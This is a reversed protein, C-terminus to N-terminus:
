PVLDRQYWTGPKGGLHVPDAPGVPVFGAKVLVKRSAANQHAAAARLTR